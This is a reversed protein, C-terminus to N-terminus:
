MVEIPLFYSGEFSGPVDIESEWITEWTSDEILSRNRPSEMLMRVSLPLSPMDQGNIRLGPASRLLKVYIRDNSRTNRLYRLLGDFSTISNVSWGKDLIDASSADGVFLSLKEGEVGAPIPISVDHRVEPAMYNGLTLAVNFDERAKASKSLVKLGELTSLKWGEEIDIDFDLTEVRPESFPNDVLASMTLWQQMALSMAGGPGSGVSKLVLPEEGPIGYKVTYFFTQEEEFDMSETLTQLLAIASILPALRKGQFLEGSYSPAKEGPVKLDINLSTREPIRGVEAAIATLRDQTLAGVVPGVNSLKFSSQVSRIVTLIEAPAIPIDVDGSMLFPHGFGLLRDGDRWTVTGTAAIRFDGDLLVAAVPAGPKLDAATLKRADGLPAGSTRLGEAKLLPAFGDIASQSLGSSFLPTPLAKLPFDSSSQTPPADSLKAILAETKEPNGIAALREKWDIQSGGGRHSATGPSSVEGTFDFTELMDKIPTIGIIAQEKPWTYGYAYAGILKGDIYCPSGSMGAVPGSLVQSADTAKALIVSRQPGIFNPSIGIIEFNFREIDNGTVVTEWYGKMGREIDEIPMQEQAQTLSASLCFLGCLLVPLSINFRFRTMPNVPLSDFFAFKAVVYRFLGQDGKCICQLELM